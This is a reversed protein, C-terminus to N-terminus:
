AQGARPPSAIISHRKAIQRADEDELPGSKAHNDIEEFYYEVGIPAFIALLKGVTDGTNTYGHHVGRPFHVFTGKQAREVWDEMFFDFNGELVYYAEEDRLHRHPPQGGGSPVAIEFVSFFQGMDAETLKCAVSDGLVNFVRGKGPKLRKVGNIVM